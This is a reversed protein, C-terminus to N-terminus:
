KREERTSVFRGTSPDRTTHVMGFATQRRNVKAHLSKHESVTMVRLNEVRNDSKDFNVHHTVENDALYRGLHREMVLRHEPVRGFHAHPHDPALIFVYGRPDAQREGHVRHAARMKEISEPSHHRGTWHSPKGRHAESMHKRYEPNKWLAATKEGRSM